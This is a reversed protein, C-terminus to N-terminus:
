KYAIKLVIDEKVNSHCQRRRPLYGRQLSTPSYSFGHWHHVGPAGPPTLPVEEVKSLKILVGPRPRLDVCMELATAPKVSRTWSVEM